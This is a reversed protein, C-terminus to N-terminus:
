AVGPGEDAAFYPALAAAMGAPPKRPRGDLGICAALVAAQAILTEGRVIRQSIFLRPGKVRDYTTRM